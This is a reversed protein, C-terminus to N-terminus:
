LTKGCYVNFVRHHWNNMNDIILDTILGEKKLMKFIEQAFADELEHPSPVPSKIFMDNGYFCGDTAIIHLHPNFDQFDSFTHGVIVDGPVEEIDAVGAKLYTCLMKWACQSRKALLRRHFM